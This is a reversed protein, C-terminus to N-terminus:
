ADPESPPMLDVRAGPGPRMSRAEPGTSIWGERELTRITVQRLRYPLQLAEGLEFWSPGHGHADYYDRVFAAADPGCAAVFTQAELRLQAAAQKKAAILARTASEVAARTPLQGAAVLGIAVRRPKPSWVRALPLLEAILEESPTLGASVIWDRVIERAQEPDSVARAAV